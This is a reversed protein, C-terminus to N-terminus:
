LDGEDKVVKYKLGIRQLAARCNICPPYSIYMTMNHLNSTYLISLKCLASMEAHIVDERTYLKDGLFVECPEKPNGLVHNFGYTVVKGTSDDIIIAAVKRKNSPSMSAVDILDQIIDVNALM